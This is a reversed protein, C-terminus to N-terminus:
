KHRISQFIVPATSITQEAQKTSLIGGFPEWPHMETADNRRGAHHLQDRICDLHRVHVAVNFVNARFWEKSMVVNSDPALSNCGWSNEVLYKSVELHRDEPGATKKAEQGQARAIQRASRKTPRAPRCSAPTSRVDYGKIVMAHNPATAGTMMRLGKDRLVTSYEATGFVRDIEVALPDLVNQGWLSDAGVDAAFWVPEGADLSNRVALELVDISTNFFMSELGGAVNNLYPVSYWHGQPRHPVPYHMLCVFESLRLHPHAGQVFHRYFELPSNCTVFVTRGPEFPSAAESRRDSDSGCEDTPQFQSRGVAGTRPLRPDSCRAQLESVNIRIPAPEAAEPESAQCSRFQWEIRGTPPTGYFLQLIEKIKAVAKLRLQRFQVQSMKQKSSPGDELGLIQAACARLILNLVSTVKETNGSHATEPMTEDPVVGYKAVLNQLMSWQGGDSVPEKLRHFLVSNQLHDTERLHWVDALFLNSKELLDYYALYCSSLQFTKELGYHQILHKRLINQLAFIWCRGSSKQDSPTQPMAIAHSFHRGLSDLRQTNTVLCNMHTTSLVRQLVGPLTLSQSLPEPEQRRKPDFPAPLALASALRSTGANQVCLAIDFEKPKSSRQPKKASIAESSPNKKPSNAM